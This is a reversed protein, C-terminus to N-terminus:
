VPQYTDVIEYHEVVTDYEVMMTQVAPPVVAVRESEGAFQRIADMSQWKTVILFEVGDAIPRRLISASVFGPIQSLQPFTDNQLHRVYNDAEESKALARWRRSIM